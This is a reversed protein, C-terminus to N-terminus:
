LSRPHIILWEVAVLGGAAVALAMVVPRARALGPPPSEFLLPAVVVIVVGAAGLLVSGLVVAHWLHHV